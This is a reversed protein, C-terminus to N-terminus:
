LVGKFARFVGGCNLAKKIDDFSIKNSVYKFV